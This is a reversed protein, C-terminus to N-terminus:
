SKVKLEFLHTRAGKAIRTVVGEEILWQMHEYVTARKMGIAQYITKLDLPGKGHMFNLVLARNTQRLRVSRLSCKENYEREIVASRNAVAVALSQMEHALTLM